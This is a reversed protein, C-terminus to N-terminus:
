HLQLLYKDLYPVLTKITTDKKVLYEQVGLNNARATNSADEFNTVVIIPFTFRKDRIHEIVGFGDIRPMNIGTVLLDPQVRDIIEIAQKGDTAVILKVDKIEQFKRVYLNLLVPDDEVFMLTKM